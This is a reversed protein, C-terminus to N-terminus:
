FPHDWTQDQSMTAYRISGPDDGEYTSTRITLKRRTGGVVPFEVTVTNEALAVAQEWTDVETYDAEHRTPAGYQRQMEVLKKGADQVSASSSTVSRGRQLGDDDFWMCTRLNAISIEVCLLDATDTVVDFGEVGTWSALLSDRPTGWDQASASSALALVAAIVPFLRM